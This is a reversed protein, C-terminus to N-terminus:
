LPDHKQISHNHIGTHMHRSGAEQLPPFRCGAPSIGESGTHDTCHFIAETMAIALFAEPRGKGEIGVANM